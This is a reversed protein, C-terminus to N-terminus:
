CALQLKGMCERKREKSSHVYRNLTLEVTAHGLIESLTKVDFGRELCTTAFIHRTAHFNISPLNAKKLITKFYYQMLRPEALKGTGSLIYCDPSKRYKLLLEFLFDPLPIERNSKESKPPTVILKTKTKGDFSKVRQVTKNIKVSQEVFDIDSWKLACLEGLRIGTYLCLLIGLLRGCLSNAKALNKTLFNVLTQQVHKAPLELEKQRIKPAAINKVPNNYHYVEEAFKGLSKLLVVMDSVYKSSLKGGGIRGCSLKENIFDDIHKSTLVDFKIGGLAPYIHLNLKMQYNAFTSEKLNHRNHGLWLEFLEKVTLKCKQTPQVTHKQLAILNERAEGYTKGYVSRYKGTEPIRFRGEWRGDKRKYINSGKRAM